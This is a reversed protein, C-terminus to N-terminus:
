NTIPIIKETIKYMGEDHSIVVVTSDRSMKSLMDYVLERNEKDVSATPEDVLIIPNKRLYARLLLVIQRQGGSLNNGLKGVDRHLNDGLLGTIPLRLVKHLAEEQSYGTGYAINHIITDNFLISHQPVYTINDRLYILDADKINVGDIFIAGASPQYFGQILKLVTSKGSGSKGYILVIDHSGIVANFNSFVENGHYIFSLNQFRIEGRKIFDKRTGSKQIKKDELDTFFKNNEIVTGIFYSSVLSEASFMRLHRIFFIMLTVMLVIKSQSLSKRMYITLAMMAIFYIFDLLGVMLDIKTRFRFEDTATKAFDKQLQRLTNLENNQEGTTFINMLNRIKDDIEEMMADEEKDRNRSKELCSKYLLWFAYLYIVMFVTSIIGLKVDIFFIFITIGVVTFLFPAIYKNFYDYITSVTWPIKTLRSQLDGMDIEYFNTSLTKIVNSLIYNRTYEELQPYFSANQWERYDMMFELALLVALLLGMEKMLPIPNRKMGNLQDYVRSFLISLVIIEVPYYIFLIFFNVTAEVPHLRLFSWLIEQINM